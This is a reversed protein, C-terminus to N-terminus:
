PNEQHYRDHCAACLTLGDELRHEAVVADVFMQQDVISVREKVLAVIVHFRRVHHAEIDRTDDCEQCKFGDRRMVPYVWVTNLLHRALRRWHTAGGRWAHNLAGRANPRAKGRLAQSATRTVIGCQTLGTIVTTRSTGIARAIEPISMGEVEYLGYMLSTDRVLASPSDETIAKRSSNEDGSRNRPFRAVGLQRLAYEVGTKGVGMVRATERISQTQLYVRKIEAWKVHPRPPAM